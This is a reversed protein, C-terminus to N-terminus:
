RALPVKQPRDAGLVELGSQLAGFRQGHRRGPGSPMPAGDSVLQGEQPGEAKRRDEAERVRPPNVELSHSTIIM